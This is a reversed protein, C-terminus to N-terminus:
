NEKAINYLINYLISDVKAVPLYKVRIIAFALSIYLKYVKAARSTKEESVIQYGGLCRKQFLKV